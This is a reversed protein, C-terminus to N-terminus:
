WVAIPFATPSNSSTASTPGRFRYLSQDDDGVVCLNGHVQALRRLLREQAHNTDQYEDCLLQRIGASIEDGVEHDDHILAVAWCQLHAFDALNRDLLLEVYGLYSRGLARKFRSRSGVLEWPDILEDCIRDFYKASNRVVTEPLRWRGRELGPLDPGFVEDFHRDLLERRKDENMLHLGSRLGMRRRHPRSQRGSGNITPDSLGDGFRFQAPHGGSGALLLRPAVAQAMGAGTVPQLRAQVDVRHRGPQSM